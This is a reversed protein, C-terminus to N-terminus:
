LRRDSRKELPFLPHPPLGRSGAKLLWLGAALLLAGLAALSYFGQRGAEGAAQQIGVLLLGLGLALAAYAPRQPFMAFSDRVLKIKKRLSWGSRGHLRSQKTYHIFEQKFPLSAILLLLSVDKVRAESLARLVARDLLFFDAGSPPVQKLGLVYRVLFYYIRAFFLTSWAEGERRDRVAWAVKAGDRWKELLAVLIEPPDQLDAALGAACDGKAESLGCALALHSGSNRAFRFVRVRKDKRAIKEVAGYTADESHDDVVIWEWNLGPLGMAKKLRGYLVPLNPAENFAPTVVSLLGRGRIKRRNSPM